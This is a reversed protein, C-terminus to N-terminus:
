PLVIADAHFVARDDRIRAKSDSYAKFVPDTAGLKARAAWKIEDRRTFAALDAYEMVLLSDWPTNQSTGNYLMQYGTLPGAEMWAKMQPVTYGAVYKAYEAAAVHTAYFVVLYVARTPDRQKAVARSLQEGYNGSEVVALRLAEPTLGGPQRREIERWRASDTFRAFDLVVVLDPNAASPFTSFLLQADTFVGARKWASFQAAGKTELWSRFEARAEPRARYTLVLSIPRDTTDSGAPEAAFVPLQASLTALLFWAAFRCFHM